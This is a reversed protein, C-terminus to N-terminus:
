RPSIATASVVAVGDPFSMGTALAQPVPPAGAPVSRLAGAGPVADLPDTPDPNPGVGLDAYYLNGGADYALGFPTGTTPGPSALVGDVVGVGNVESVHFVGAPVLVSSVAWGGGPAPVIGIPTGLGVSWLEETPVTTGCAGAGAPFNSYRQIQGAGSEPVYLRGASDFAVMGPQDLGSDIVCHTTYDPAFFEVIKGDGQGPTHNFGVDIGFLNGAADFACGAPDETHAPDSAPLGGIRGLTGYPATFDRSGGKTFVGFFPNTDGDFHDPGDSPNDDAEVFRGAKDGPIFCPTGNVWDSPKVLPQPRLTHTSIDYVDLEENQAILVVQGTAPKASVHAVGGLQLAVIAVGVAAVLVRKM